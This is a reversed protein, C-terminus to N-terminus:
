SLRRFAVFGLGLMLLALLGLGFRDLTPIGEYIRTNVITCSAGNGPTVSLGQCDSSDAEVGTEVVSETVDCRTTGDWHPFVFFGDVAGNGLFELSGFAQAGFQENDCDFVAEAYNLADFDPNDDLWQKTVEVLVRQLQNLVLCTNGQGHTIDAYDCSTESPFSFGDDVSYFPLYGGPAPNEDISCNMGGDEFDRVVFVVGGDQDIDATQELPLGTNCSIRVEVEAPNLDDFVKTVAFTARSQPEGGAGEPALLRGETAYSFGTGFDVQTGFQGGASEVGVSHDGEGATTATTYQLEILDGNERLIIEMEVPTNGRFHQIQYYGVVLERNPATGLTQRRITGGNNPSLDEWFGAIMNDVGGPTPIAVGTCCGSNSGSNFTVFGNSSIYLQTYFEGYYEFAFGIPVPGSVADDGLAVATGSASIDRLNYPVDSVQYNVDITGAQAQAGVLLAALGVTIGFLKM